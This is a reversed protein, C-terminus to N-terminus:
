DFISGGKLRNPIIIGSHWGQTVVEAQTYGHRVYKMRSVVEGGEELKIYLGEMLSTQDTQHLVESPDLGLGEAKEYLESLHKGEIFRSQGILELLEKRSSLLGEFLTPVSRIFSGCLLAQRSGTDLYKGRERDFIDFELFYHSLSNYYVRHKRYLWEGYMIYREGLIEYLEECRSNAWVKFLEYEREKVGGRLFHGRSQLHLDGDFFSIGVNAGDVKEEVAVWRGSIASFPIQSLDEDGDQLRSGEIHPTRPYKLIRNEM